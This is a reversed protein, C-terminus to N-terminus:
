AAAPQTKTLIAEPGEPKSRTRRCSSRYQALARAWAPNMKESPTKWILNHLFALAEGDALLARKEQFTL